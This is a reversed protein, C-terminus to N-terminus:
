ENDDKRECINNPRIIKNKLYDIEIQQDKAIQKEIELEYKVRFLESKLESIELEHSNLKNTQEIITIQLGDTFTQMKLITNINQDRITAENLEKGGQEEYKVKAIRLAIWSPISSVIITAIFPWVSNFIETLTM